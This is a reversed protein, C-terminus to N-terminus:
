EENVFIETYEDPKEDKVYKKLRDYLDPMEDRDDFVLSVLNLDESIAPLFSRWLKDVDGVDYAKGPTNPNEVQFIDLLMREALQPGAGVQGTIYNPILNQLVYYQRLKPHKDYQNEMWENVKQGAQEGFEKRTLTNLQTFARFTKTDAYASAMNKIIRKNYSTPFYFMNVSKEFGTRTSGYIYGRAKTFGSDVGKTFLDIMGEDIGAKKLGQIYDMDIGVAMAKEMEKAVFDKKSDILKVIDRADMSAFETGQKLRNIEKITQSGAIRNLAEVDGGKLGVKMVETAEEVIDGAKINKGKAIFESIFDVKENGFFMRNLTNETYNMAHFSLRWAWRAQRRLKSGADIIRGPIGASKSLSSFYQTGEEAWDAAKSRKVLMGFNKLKNAEGIKDLAGTSLDYMSMPTETVRAWISKLGVLIKEDGWKMKKFKKSFGIILDEKAKQADTVVKQAKKIAKEINPAKKIGNLQLNYRMVKDNRIIELPANDYAGSFFQAIKKATTDAIKLLPMNDMGQTLPNYVVFRAGDGRKVPILGAKLAEKTASLEEADLDLKGLHYKSIAEKLEKPKGKFKEILSLVKSDTIDETAGRVYTNVLDDLSKLTHNGADNFKPELNHWKEIAAWRKEPNVIHGFKKSVNIIGKQFMDKSMNVGEKAAERIGGHAAVSSLIDEKGNKIVINLLDNGMYNRLVGEVQENKTFVKNVYRGFLRETVESYKTAARSAKTSSKALAAANPSVEDVVRLGKLIGGTLKEAKGTTKIVASMARITSGIPLNVLNLPDSVMSLGIAYWEGGKIESVDKGTWNEILAKAMPLNGEASVDKVVQTWTKLVEKQSEEGSKVFSQWDTIKGSKYKKYMQLAQLGPTMPIMGLGYVGAQAQRWTWDVAKLLPMFVRSALGKKENGYLDLQYSTSSIKEDGYTTSNVPEEQLLGNNPRSFNNYSFSNNSSNNPTFLEVNDKDRVNKYVIGM